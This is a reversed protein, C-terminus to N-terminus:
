TNLYKKPNNIIDILEESLKFDLYQLTRLFEIYKIQLKINEFWGESDVCDFIAESIDIGELVKRCVCRLLMFEQLTYIIRLEHLPNDLIEKAIKKNHGQAGIGMDKIPDSDEIFKENIFKARM